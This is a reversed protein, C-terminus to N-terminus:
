AKRCSCCLEENSQAVCYAQVSRATSVSCCALRRDELWAHQWRFHTCFSTKIRKIIPQEPFAATASFFKVAGMVQRPLSIM